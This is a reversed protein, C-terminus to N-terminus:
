NQNLFDEVSAYFSPMGVSPDVEVSIVGYNEDEAQFRVTYSRTGIGRSEWEFDGSMLSSYMERVYKLIEQEIDEVSLSKKITHKNNAVDFEAAARVSNVNISILKKVTPKEKVLDAEVMIWDGDSLYREVDPSSYTTKRSEGTGVDVWEVRYGDKCRIASFITGSHECASWPRFKFNDPTTLEKTQEEVKEETYIEWRPNEGYLSDLVEDEFTFIPSTINEGTMVYLNNADKILSYINDTLIGRVKFKSPVTLVWQGGRLFSEVEYLTRSNPNELGGGSIVCEYKDVKGFYIINKDSHHYFWFKNPVKM